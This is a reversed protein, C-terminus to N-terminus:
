LEKLRISSVTLSQIMKVDTANLEFSVSRGEETQVLSNSALPADNVAEIQLNILAVAKLKGDNCFAPSDKGNYNANPFFLWKNGQNHAYGNKTKFWHVQVRDGEPDGYKPTIAILEDEKALSLKLNSGLLM